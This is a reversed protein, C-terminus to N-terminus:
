VVSDDSSNVLPAAPVGPVRTGPWHLIIQADCRTTEEEGDDDDVRRRPDDASVM